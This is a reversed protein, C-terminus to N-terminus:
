PLRSAIIRLRAAVFVRRQVARQQVQEVDLIHQRLFIQGIRAPLLDIAILRHRDIFITFHHRASKDRAVHLDRGGVLLRQQIDIQTLREKQFGFGGIRIRQRRGTRLKGRGVDAAVGGVIDKHVHIQAVAAPQHQGVGPEGAPLRVNAGKAGIFVLFLLQRNVPGIAREARDIQRLVALPGHAKDIRGHAKLQSQEDAKEAGDRQPQQQDPPRPPAVIPGFQSGALHARHGFIRQGGHREVQDVLGNVKGKGHEVHAQQPRIAGAFIIKHHREVAGEFDDAAIPQTRQQRSTAASM